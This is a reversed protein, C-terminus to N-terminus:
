KRNKTPVKFLYPFILFSKWSNRQGLNFLIFSYIYENNEQEVALKLKKTVLINLTIRLKLHLM